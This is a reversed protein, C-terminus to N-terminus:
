QGAEVPKGTDRLAAKLGSQAHSDAPYQELAARFAKEAVDNKGQKLALQGVAEAVPRPYYPPESYRLRREGNAATQLTKLARAPKGAAALIHGELERRAVMLEEPTKLKTKTRYELLAADMAKAETRAADVNGKEANALGLAWHKWAM